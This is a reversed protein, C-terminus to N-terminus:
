SFLKKIRRIINLYNKLINTRFILKKHRPHNKAWIGEKKKIFRVKSFNNFSFKIEKRVRKSWDIDESQGWLLSENLPFKIMVEKKACWYYGVLCQYKNINIDYPLFTIKKYTIFHDYVIWDLARNGNEDEVRNTFIKWENNHNFKLFGKYWDDCLVVYDHLFCINEYQSNKIILNKKRSIPFINKNDINEKLDFKIIKLKHDSDIIPIQDTIILIEFISINQSIISKIISKLRDIDKGDTIIGFTWSKSLEM